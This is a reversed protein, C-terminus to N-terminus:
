IKVVEILKDICSLEADVYTKFGNLEINIKNSVIKYTWKGNHPVVYGVIFYKEKFFEFVQQKLPATFPKTPLTNKVSTNTHTNSFNILKKYEETYGKFCPKNFGLEKLALSQNYNAFEKEM